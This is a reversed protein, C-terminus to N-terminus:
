EYAYSWPNTHVDASNSFGLRLSTGHEARHASVTRQTRDHRVMWRPPVAHRLLVDGNHAPEGLLSENAPLDLHDVVKDGLVADVVVRHWLLRRAPLTLPPHTLHHDASEGVPGDRVVVEDRGTVGDGLAPREVPGVGSVEHANGSGTALDLDAADLDPTAGVALDDFAPAHEVGTGHHLLESDDAFSDAASSLM